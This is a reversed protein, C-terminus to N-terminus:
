KATVILFTILKAFQFESEYKGSKVHGGERFDVYTDSENSQMSRIKAIWKPPEWYGVAHDNLGATVYISPYIQKKINDYPSYSKIYDFVKEDNRPNGYETWDTPTLTM